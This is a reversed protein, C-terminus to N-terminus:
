SYSYIIIICIRKYGFVVTLCRYCLLGGNPLNRLTGVGGM